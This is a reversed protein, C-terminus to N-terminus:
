APVNKIRVLKSLGFLNVRSVSEITWEPDHLSDLDLNSHFGVRDALPEVLREGLQWVGAGKFHNLILITGGPTCVRKLENILRDPRPTVSLVYPLTVCDFCDDPLPLQEADSCLIDVHDLSLDRILNSCRRLMDLSLDVGTTPVDDPYHPLALGTGVGVELIRTPHVDRVADAMAVRGAELIRGFVWDYVPAYRRYARVVAERGLQSLENDRSRDAFRSMQCRTIEM